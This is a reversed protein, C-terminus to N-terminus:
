TTPLTLHTYSVPDATMPFRLGESAQVGTGSGLVSAGAVGVAFAITAATARAQRAIRGGQKPTTQRTNEDM